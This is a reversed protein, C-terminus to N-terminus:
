SSTDQASPRLQLEQNFTKEYLRAFYTVEKFGVSRALETLSRMNGQAVLQRAKDLRCHRIFAAPTFNAQEALRRRLTAESVHMANALEEVGFDSEMLRQNVIAKIKEIYSTSEDPALAADQLTGKHQGQAAHYFANFQAQKNLLNQIRAKLEQGSFPKILYDDVAAMLGEIKDRMGARATLMIIPINAFAEQQKIARVFGLGDRNPMMLDTIILAPVQKKLAIEALLGDNATTVEFDVALLQKIYNRMDENDDVVLISQRVTESAGKQQDSDLEPQPGGESPISTSINTDIRTADDVIENDNLHARGLPLIVRFTTGTSPKTPEKNPIEIPQHASNVSVSGGHLEVLEKVLALGIGTGVGSGSLKSSESQFYRDFVHALEPTPIGHGTDTVAIQVYEDQSFDPDAESTSKTSSVTVNVQGGADTFKIANSLLNNMVIQLKEVDVYANIFAQDSKVSLGIGQDACLSEFQASLEKITEVVDLPSAKLDLANDDLESLVLIQDILQKLSDSHKIVGRITEKNNSAEHELLTTLPGEILTLPTRFEHSINAFFRSKSEDLQLLKQAQRELDSNMSRIDATKQQLEQELQNNYNSKLTNSINLQELASRQAAEKERHAMLGIYYSFLILAAMLATMTTYPVYYKETFGLAFLTRDTLCLIIPAQTILVYKAAALRDKILAYIPVFLCFYGGVLIAFISCVRSYVASDYFYALLLPLLSFALLLRGVKDLKPYNKLKIFERCLFATLYVSLPFFIVTATRSLQPHDPVLYQVLRGDISLIMIFVSLSWAIYFLSTLQRASAFLLLNYIVLGMLVGVFIGFWGEKFNNDVDYSSRDWLKAVLFPTTAAYVRVYFIQEEGPLLRVNFDFQSNPIDRTSMIKSSGTKFSMLGPTQPYFDIETLTPPEFATVLNQSQNTINRLCFRLWHNGKTKGLTAEKGPNILRKFPFGKASEGLEFGANLDPTKIAGASDWYHYILPLLQSGNITTDTEVCQMESHDANALALVPVATLLCAVSLLLCARVSKLSSSLFM